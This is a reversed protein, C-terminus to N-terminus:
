CVSPLCLIPTRIWDTRMELLFLPWAVSQSVAEALSSWMPTLIQSVTDEYPCSKNDQLLDLFCNYRVVNVETSTSVGGVVWFSLLFVIEAVEFVDKLIPNAIWYM